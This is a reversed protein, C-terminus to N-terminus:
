PPLPTLRLTVFTSPTGKCIYNKILSYNLVLVAFNKHAAWVAFYPLVKIMSIHFQMFARSVANLSLSNLELEYFQMWAWPVAHLSISVKPFRPTVNLLRLFSTIHYCKLKIVCVLASMLLQLAADKCSFVLQYKYIHRSDQTHLTHWTLSDILKIQSWFIEPLSNTAPCIQDM